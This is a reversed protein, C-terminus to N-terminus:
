PTVEKIYFCGSWIHSTQTIQTIGTLVTKNKETDKQLYEDELLEAFPLGLCYKVELGICHSAGKRHVSARGQNHSAGQLEPSILAVPSHCGGCDKIFPLM